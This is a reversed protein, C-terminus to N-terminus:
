HAAPARRRRLWHRIVTPREGASAQEPAVDYEATGPDPEPVPSTTAQATRIQDLKHMLLDHVEALRDAGASRIRELEADNASWVRDLQGELVSCLRAVGEDIAARIRELEATNAVRVRVFAEDNASRIRKAEERNLTRLAEIERDFTIQMRDVAVRVRRDLATELEIRLMDFREELDALEGASRQREARELSEARWLDRVSPHGAERAAIEPDSPEDAVAGGIADVQLADQVVGVTEAEIGNPTPRRRAGDIGYLSRVAGEEEAQVTEREDLRIASRRRSVAPPPGHLRGYALPPV